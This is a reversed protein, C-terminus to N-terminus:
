TNNQMTRTAAPIVAHRSPPAAAQKDVSSSIMEDGNNRSRITPPRGLLKEHISLLTTLDDAVIELLPLTRGRRNKTTAPRLTLTQETEDYHGWRTSTLVVQGGWEASGEVVVPLDVQWLPEGGRQGPLVLQPPRATRIVQVLGGALTKM